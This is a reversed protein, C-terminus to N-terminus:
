AADGINMSLIGKKPGAVLHVLLTGPLTTNTGDSIRKGQSYIRLLGAMAIFSGSHVVPNSQSTQLYCKDVNTPYNSDGGPYQYIEYPPSDNEALMNAVIEASAAEDQSSTLWTYINDAATVPVNPQDGDVTARSEEYAQILGIDTPSVDDGVLHLYPERIQEPDVTQDAYVLKSHDWEGQAVQDGAGDLTRLEVGSRHGNDMYIKFDEYSPRVGVQGTDNRTRRQQEMWAMRGKMYAQVAVWTTPLVKVTAELGKADTATDQKLELSAIQLMQGQHYGRRNVAAIDRMLDIYVDTGDGPLIYKLTTEAPIVKAKRNSRRTLSGKKRTTTGKKKSGKKTAM